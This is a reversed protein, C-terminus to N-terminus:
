SRVTEATIALLSGPLRAKDVEVVISLINQGQLGNKGPTTQDVKAANVFKVTRILDLFWPDSRVGAFVKLGDKQGHGGAAYKDSRTDFTVTQSAAGANLKCTAHQVPDVLLTGGAFTCSVTAERAPDASPKMSKKDDIPRIRFRYEVADSFRSRTNALGHVNMIMVLKSPDTPSTFTFLDTLDAAIDVATKIGDIHDSARSPAETSFAAAALALALPFTKKM